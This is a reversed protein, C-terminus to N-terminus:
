GDRRLAARGHEILPLVRAGIRDFGAGVTKGHIFRYHIGELIVALKYCALAEYWDLTSLDLPSGELYRALLEKAGPFGAAPGIAEAIPHHPEGSGVVEWYTVLLGLDTLPDGLTAMEWDLVATIRPGAPDVLLNDLRYDGHVIAPPPSAPVTAALEDRLEDAGPLDRSRSRDLQAAWRRVQRALFGDPHGFDGLGVAYPDVTHLAVLTDMMAMALASRAADPMADTQRRTRLVEGPVRSMLYFPAGLVSEDTCMLLARPVPVDTAELASIVRYERGMDHATALVHGLPPRRLVYDTNGDSVYYTLNSRGGAVLSARLPGAALEPRHGHLFAALPALELGPPSGACPQSATM